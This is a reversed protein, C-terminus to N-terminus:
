LNSYAETMTHQYKSTCYCYRLHGQAHTSGMYYTNHKREAGLLKLLTSLGAGPLFLAPTEVAVCYLTTSLVVNIHATLQM